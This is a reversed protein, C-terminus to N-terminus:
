TTIGIVTGGTKSTQKPYVGVLGGFGGEGTQGVKHLIRHASNTPLSTLIADKAYCNGTGCWVDLVDRRVRKVVTSKM